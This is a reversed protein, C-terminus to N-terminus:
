LFFRGKKGFKQSDADRQVYEHFTCPHYTHHINTIEELPHCVHNMFEEELQYITQYPNIGDDQCM